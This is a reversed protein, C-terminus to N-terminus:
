NGLVVGVVACLGLAIVVYKLIRAGTPIYLIDILRTNFAWQLLVSLVFLGGGVVVVVGILIEFLLEMNLGRYILKLSRM